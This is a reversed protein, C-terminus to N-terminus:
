GAGHEMWLGWARARGVLVVGVKYNLPGSGTRPRGDPEIPVEHPLSSALAREIPAFSLFEELLAPARATEAATFSRKMVHLLLFRATEMPAERWNEPGFGPALRETLASAIATPQPSGDFVLAGARVLRDFFGLRELAPRFLRFALDEAAPLARVIPGELEPSCSEAGMIVDRYDRLGDRLHIDLRERDGNSLALVAWKLRDNGLLDLLERVQEQSTPFLLNIAANLDRVM